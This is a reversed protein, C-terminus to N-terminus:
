GASANWFTIAEGSSGATGIFLDVAADVVDRKAAAILVYVGADVAVAEEPYVCVWKKPDYGGDSSVLKKIQVAASEDVGKIMIIQHAFTGIAAFSQAAEAVYKNFDAESLGITNQSEEATVAAPPMCMPMQVGAAGLDDVLKGLM